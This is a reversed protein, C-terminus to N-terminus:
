SPLCQVRNNMSSKEFCNHCTLSRWQKTFNVTIVLHLISILFFLKHVCKLCTKKLCVNLLKLHDERVCTPSFAESTGTHKRVM